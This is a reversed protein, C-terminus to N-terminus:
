QDPMILRETRQWTTKQRGTVAKLFGILLALNLNCFYFPAYVLLMLKGGKTMVLGGAALIYFVVQTIFTIKFLLSYYFLHVNIFFTLILVFPIIWRFVRHSWYIFSRIGLLPNLLGLLHVIAIYHGAGDRIHRRFESEATPAVDEYALADEEYISKYGKEVIKMSTTFDDNITKPPLPEFLKRRIAYMAGNAGAVYGVKSELIKLITEYKWYFSEGEGSLVKGPNRYVLRGSVCGVKRDEFHRIIKKLADRAYETNADSFVIIDSEIYAVAKNIVGSKGTRAFELLHVNKNSEVFRKAIDNTKDSSGDSAIWIDLLGEAYDLNLSNRIKDGIVKDENYAAILICVRPWKEIMSIDKGGKSPFIESLLYLILPYGLYSYLLVAVCILFFISM